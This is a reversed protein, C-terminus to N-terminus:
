AGAAGERRAFRARYKRELLQIAPVGILTPLLWPVVALWGELEFPLLRNGGFVLFATNAAIATGIMGGMHEFWWEMPGAAPRSVFRLGSIGVVPGIVALAMFVISGESVGVAFIALGALISAGFLALTAPTRMERPDRKHRLAGLGHWGSTLTILALYALFGAVMRRQRVYDALPEGTLRAADPDLAVPVVFSLGSLVLATVVVVLMFLAYLKGTTRHLRGGKRSFLPIWLVVLAVFGCAVHLVLLADHLLATM